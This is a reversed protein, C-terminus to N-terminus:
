PGRLSSVVREGAINVVAKHTKQYVKVVPTRRDYTLEGRVPAVNAAMAAPLWILMAMRFFTGISM